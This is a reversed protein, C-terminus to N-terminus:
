KSTRAVILGLPAGLFIIIYGARREALALTGYSWAALIAVALRNTLGPPPMGLLVDGALHFTVFLISLLSTLTLVLRQKM